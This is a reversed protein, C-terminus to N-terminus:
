IMETIKYLIQSTKKKENNNFEPFKGIHKCFARLSNEINNFNNNSDNDSNM